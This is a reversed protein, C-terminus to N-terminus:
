SIKGAGKEAKHSRKQLKKNEGCLRGVVSKVWPHTKQSQSVKKQFNKLTELPDGEM